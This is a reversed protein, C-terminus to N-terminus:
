IPQPVGGAACSLREFQLLAFELFSRHFVESHNDGMVGDFHIWSFYSSYQFPGSRSVFLFDLGKQSESVEIPPKYFAKGM